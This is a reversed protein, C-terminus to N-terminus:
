LRAGMTVKSQAVGGTLRFFLSGEFLTEGLYLRKTLIESRMIRGESLLRSGGASPPDSGGDVM